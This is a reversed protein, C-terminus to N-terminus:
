QVLKVGELTWVKDHHRFTASAVGFPPVEGVRPSKHRQPLKDLAILADVGRFRFFKWTFTVKASDGGSAVREFIPLDPGIGGVPVEWSDGKAEIEGFTKRKAGRETLSLTCSQAGSPSTEGATKMYGSRVLIAFAQSEQSSALQDCAGPLTRPVIVALASNFPSTALITDTVTDSSPKPACATANACIFVIYALRTHHKMLTRLSM